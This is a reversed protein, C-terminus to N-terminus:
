RRPRSATLSSWRLPMVRDSFTWTWGTPELTKPHRIVLEAEDQADMTSLDFSTM